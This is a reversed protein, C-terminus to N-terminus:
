AEMIIRRMIGMYVCLHVLLNWLILLHKNFCCQAWSRLRRRCWAVKPSNKRPVEAPIRLQWKVDNLTTKVYWTISNLANSYLKIFFHSMMWCLKVCNLIILLWINALKEQSCSICTSCICLSWKRLILFVVSCCWPPFPCQPLPPTPTPYRQSWQYM